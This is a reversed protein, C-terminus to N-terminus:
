PELASSNTTSTMSRCALASTTATATATTITRAARCFIKSNLQVGVQWGAQRIFSDEKRGRAKDRFQSINCGIETIKVSPYHKIPVARSEFRSSGNEQRGTKGERKLVCLKVLLSLLLGVLAIFWALEESERKTDVGCLIGHIFCYSAWHWRLLWERRTEEEGEKWM